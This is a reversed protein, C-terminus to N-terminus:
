AREDVGIHLGFGTDDRVAVVAVLIPFFQTVENVLSYRM